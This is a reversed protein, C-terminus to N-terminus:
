PDAKRKAFQYVQRSPSVLTQNRKYKRIPIFPTEAVKGRGSRGLRNRNYWGTDNHSFAREKDDSYWM